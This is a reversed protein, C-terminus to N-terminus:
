ALDLRVREAVRKLMPLIQEVLRSPPVSAAPAGVNIAAVIQGKRNVLPVAISCLGIELEQDVLAYGQRRVRGLEEMLQEPDTITRETHACLPAQELLRRVQDEPLGALLVRGMSSCYAPLRSGPSLNISMVRRQSARAIYVIETDDLVSASCSQGSSESLEDLYPQVLTPLATASLYSQGLRLIRHTLAFFKGDHTAYGLSVLTLLLRRASARDLGTKRAVDTISMRRADEGFAEIVRLGKAFGSVIDTGKPLGGEM